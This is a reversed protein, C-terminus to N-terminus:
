VDGTSLQDTIESILSLWGVFQRSSGSDTTMSGVPRAEDDLAVDLVIRLPNPHATGNTAAADAAVV